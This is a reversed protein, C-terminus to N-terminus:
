SMHDRVSYVLLTGIGWLGVCIVVILFINTPRRPYAADQPTYPNSYVALYRQQQDADRRAQELSALASAYSEEAFRKEVELGEYASLLNSVAAGDVGERTLAGSIAARRRDIQGELAEAQRRLSVISPANEDLSDSIAAMRANLDVLRSELSSLLQIDLEATAAPNVSQERERFNSISALAERLREEQRALEAEAFRLADERASATLNNALEQTLEVTAAAVERAHEPTFSQVEINIIGSTPDFSTKIMRTWYDLFEEQSAESRLRSLPDIEDQSFVTRLDVRRDLAQILDQSELYELVIYSDSTTSGSSALGTLAGITDLGASSEIGRVAFGASSAYRDSAVELYYYTSLGIPTLVFLLFSLLLARRRRKQPRVMRGMSDQAGSLDVVKGKTELVVPRQAKGQQPPKKNQPNGKPKNPNPAGKGDAKQPQNKRAAAGKKNDLVDGM